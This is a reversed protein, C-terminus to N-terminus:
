LLKRIEEPSVSDNKREEIAKQQVRQMLINPNITVMPRGDIEVVENNENKVVHVSMRQPLNLIAISTQPASASGESLSRRKAANVAQLVRTIKLPDELTAAAAVLKKALMDEVKNLNEDISAFKSAKLKTEALQRIEYKEIAQAVASPTVGLSEAIQTDTFGAAVADILHERTLTGM